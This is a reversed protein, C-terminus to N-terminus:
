QTNAARTSNAAQPSPTLSLYPRIARLKMNGVGRVQTLQQTDSFWGHQNRYAVIQKALKEGIGPLNAFEQWPAHNIDVVFEAPQPEIQDFDVLGNNVMSRQWFCFSAIILFVALSIWLVLQDDTGLIRLRQRDM